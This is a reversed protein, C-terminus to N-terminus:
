QWIFGWSGDKNLLTISVFVVFEADPNLFFFFLPTKKGQMSAFISKFFDVGIM